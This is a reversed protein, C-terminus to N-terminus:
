IFELGGERTRIIEEQLGVEMCAEELDLIGAIIGGAM